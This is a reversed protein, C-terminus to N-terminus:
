EALLGSLQQALVRVHPEKLMALQNGPIVRIDLGSGALRGWGKDPRHSSFLPQMRAKFLTLRGPYIQPRYKKLARSQAHAIKLHHESFEFFGAWEDILTATHSQSSGATKDSVAKRARAVRVKLKLLDLWQSRNLELSGILWSPIDKLLDRFSPKCALKEDTPSGVQSDFLAVMAVQDGRARLQQAMEFAVIGASCLGALAYPGEPQVVRVQETYYAAMAKIDDFPEDIGNLGRAEIAYFPQDSGLHRALNMYCLVDGFFTHVCFLPRKTGLPQIAVLSASKVTGPTDDSIVRALHEITAQQFLSALPPRKGFTREIEAFLRVALLSHGGLDFFNDRIGVQKLGLLKTWITALMEETATRPAMFTESVDPRSGDPAPLRKRDLKGNPALPLSDLLVFNVPVMYEPLKQKLFGRLEGATLTTDPNLVVYAALQKAGPAQERARVAADRVLAHQRLVTEVEGLEVRFGRIKVQADTRGIFEITGDPRYLGIDGTKYLRAGQKNSFPNPIFRDATLDPRGRYGRALGDGGIYIEAPVGVPVLELNSDLILTETNAIPRGLTITEDATIRGATANATSETPGYVNWIETAPFAVVTRQVLPASLQEGGLFLVAPSNTSVLARNSEVVDLLVSWLSPVCNFGTGSSACLEKILLAPENIVKESLLWVAQGRLLPALLQKLSGDFTPKSVVPLRQLEALAEIQNFWCLYNVVSKHAIMVGKPTGTSGSTYIVYALNEAVASAPPNATSEQKLQLREDDLCVPTARGDRFREAFKRAAIVISTQSDELIFAARAEPYEPDLPVYAGGAKLIGLIAVLMELSRELCIGVLVDPGVGHKKLYHALQNARANLERYTLQQEDSIAAVAEPSRDVQDEFLQHLCKDPYEKETANWEVLLRHKEGAGLIPLASIAQEPNSVIGQLLAEFHGLMRIIRQESFLDTNYQLSGTLGEGAEHMFLTLDFKATERDISVPSVTLGELQWATGPANQLVFMVQFLPSHSLSREPKLEEVLSEFPLDQHDYADLASQRLRHLVERFRPNGSLDARFVLTNVFFGILGETETRNRGAIPSGVVLNKQGTYRYLLTEFAALLTMFLTAGEDQSLVKLGRTLERSLEISRRAGRYTQVAPRPHDTPLNLVGPVGELQKTWYSLQRDLEAGKLWERQWVAYDAYQIPLAALPSPESDSFARYLVSLERHLVGISWGDSVIHHMVLVLLHDAEGLRILTARFLPGRALDFPRRAEEGALRRAEDERELDCRDKLDVLALSGNWEPAIVQLPEGDLSAFTSRLAEHRRAIEELSRKLANKDLRGKLRLASSM